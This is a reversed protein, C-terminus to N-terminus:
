GEAGQKLAAVLEILRGWQGDGLTSLREATDLLDKTGYPLSPIVPLGIRDIKKQMLAVREVHKDYSDEWEDYAKAAEQEYDRVSKRLQLTFDVADRAVAKALDELGDHSMLISNEVKGIAAVAHEFLQGIDWLSLKEQQLLKELDSIDM